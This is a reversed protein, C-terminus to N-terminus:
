FLLWWIFIIKCNDRKNFTHKLQELSTLEFICHRPRLITLRKPYLAPL